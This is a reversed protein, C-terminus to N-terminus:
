SMSEGGSRRGGCSAHKRALYNRRQLCKYRIIIPLEIFIKDREISDM